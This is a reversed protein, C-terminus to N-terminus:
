SDTKRVKDVEGKTSLTEIQYTLTVGSDFPTGRKYGLVRGRGNEPLTCSIRIEHRDTVVYKEIYHLCWLTLM